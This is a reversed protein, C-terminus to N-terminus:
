RHISARLPRFFARVDGVFLEPEEAPLFHGGRPIVSWRTLDYQREAFSRPPIGHPEAESLYFGVPASVAGAPPRPGPPLPFATYTLTSTGFSGAAWHVMV